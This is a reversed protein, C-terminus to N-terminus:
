KCLPEKPSNLEWILKITKYCAKHLVVFLVNMQLRGGSNEIMERHCSEHYVHGCPLSLNERWYAPDIPYQCTSCIIENSEQGPVDERRIGATAKVRAQQLLDDVRM